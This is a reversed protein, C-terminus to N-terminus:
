ANETWNEVSADDLWEIIQMAGAWSSSMGSESIYRFLRGDPARYLAMSVYDDEDTEHRFDYSDVQESKSILAAVDIEEDNM